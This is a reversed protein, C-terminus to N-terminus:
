QRANLGKSTARFSFRELHDADYGNLRRSSGADFIEVMGANILQMLDDRLEGRKVRLEELLTDYSEIFVLQNIVEKQSKTPKM